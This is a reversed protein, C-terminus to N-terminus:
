DWQPREYQVDGQSNQISQLVSTLQRATAELTDIRQNLEMMRSEMANVDPSTQPLTDEDWEFYKCQSYREKPCVYFWRGKNKGEKKVQIRKSELGCMCRSM